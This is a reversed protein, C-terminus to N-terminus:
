HISPYPKLTKLSNNRETFHQNLNKQSPHQTRDPSIYVSKRHGTLPSSPGLGDSFFPMDLVEYASGRKQASIKLMLKLAEHADNSIGEIVKM